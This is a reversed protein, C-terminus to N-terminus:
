IVCQKKYKNGSEDFYDGVQFTLSNFFEKNM